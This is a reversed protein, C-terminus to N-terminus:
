TYVVTFVYSYGYSTRVLTDTDYRYMNNKKSHKRRSFKTLHIATPLKLLFHLREPTRTGFKPFETYKLDQQLFFVIPSRKCHNPTRLASTHARRPYTHAHPTQQQPPVATTLALCGDCAFGLAPQLADM